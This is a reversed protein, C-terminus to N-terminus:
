LGRGIVEHDIVERFALRISKEEKWAPTRSFQAYHKELHAKVADMDDEPIDVGGRSGQCAAGAASVGNWVVKFEGDVIDHHPLKYSGVLEPEEEDYWAFGTRYKDFDIKDKDGSGDSSAWEALRKRAGDGDWAMDEPAKAPEHGAVAGKALDERELLALLNKVAERLKTM